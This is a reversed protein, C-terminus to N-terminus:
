EDEDGEPRIYGLAEARQQEDETGYVWISDLFKQENEQNFDVSFEKALLMHEIMFNLGLELVRDALERGDEFVELNHMTTTLANDNFQLAIINLGEYALIYHNEITTKKFGNEDAEIIM